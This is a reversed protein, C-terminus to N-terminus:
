CYSEDMNVRFSPNQNLSSLKTILDDVNEDYSNGMQQGRLYKVSIVSAHIGSMKLRSIQDSM